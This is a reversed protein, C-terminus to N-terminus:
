VYSLLSQSVPRMIIKIYIYPPNRHVLSQDILFLTIRKTTNFLSHRTYVPLDEPDLDLDCDLNSDLYTKETYVPYLIHTFTLEM